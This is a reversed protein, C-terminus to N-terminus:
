SYYFMTQQFNGADLEIIKGSLYVLGDNISIELQWTQHGTVVAYFCGCASIKELLQQAAVL